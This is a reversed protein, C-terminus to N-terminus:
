WYQHLNQFGHNRLGDRFKWILEDSWIEILFSGYSFSRLFFNSAQGFFQLHYTIVWRSSITKRAICTKHNYSGSPNFLANGSKRKNSGSFIRPWFFTAITYAGHSGSNRSGRGQDFDLSSVGITQMIKQKGLLMWCQIYVSSNLWTM